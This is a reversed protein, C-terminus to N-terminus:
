TGHSIRTGFTNLFRLNRAGGFSLKATDSHCGFLLNCREKHGFTMYTENIFRYIPMRATINVDFKCLNHWYM